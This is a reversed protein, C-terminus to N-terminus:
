HGNFISSNELTLINRDDKSRDYEAQEYRSSSFVWVFTVSM